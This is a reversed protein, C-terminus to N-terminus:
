ESIGQIYQQRNIKDNPDPVSYMGFQERCSQFLKNREDISYVDVVKRYYELAQDQGNSYSM